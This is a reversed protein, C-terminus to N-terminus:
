RAHNPLGPIVGDHGDILAEYLPLATMWGDPAVARGEIAAYLHHRQQRLWARASTRQDRTLKDIRVTSVHKGDLYDEWDPRLIWRDGELFRRLADSETPTAYHPVARRSGPTNPPMTMTM